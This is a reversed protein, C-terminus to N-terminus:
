FQLFIFRYLFYNPLGACNTVSFKGPDTWSSRWPCTSPASCRSPTRRGWSWLTSCLFVRARIEPWLAIFYIENFRLELILAVCFGERKISRWRWLFIYHQYFSLIMVNARYSRSTPHVLLFFLKGQVYVFAVDVAVLHTQSFIAWFIALGM